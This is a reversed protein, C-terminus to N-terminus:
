FIVFNGHGRRLPLRPLLLKDSSLVSKLTAPQINPRSCLPHLKESNDVVHLYVNQHHTQRQTRWAETLLGLFSMPNKPRGNTIYHMSM